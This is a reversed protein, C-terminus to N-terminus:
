RNQKVKLSWWPRDAFDTINSTLSLRYPVFSAQRQKDIKSDWTRATFLVYWTMSLIFREFFFVFIDVKM